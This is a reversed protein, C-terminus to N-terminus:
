KKPAPAGGQDPPTAPLGQGPQPPTPQGATPPQGPIPQGSVHPPRGPLENGPSNIDSVKVWRLGHEPHYAV